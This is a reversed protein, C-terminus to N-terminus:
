LVPGIRWPVFERHGLRESATRKGSAVELLYEFIEMGVQEITAEDDLIRGANLDMNDRMARFAPTNTAIKIVPVTPFGIASGRGTTFAMLNAGGAALGTISVPDHGPTDMFVLGPSSVRGAYEVVSRLPSSGGKAVAGLSKEVINTLGGEKNGPAPNDDFNCGFRRLYDKYAAIRALLAEAVERNRARRVLLHEAGFIEPTEALVATGGAEALLDSCVGLAPNATVGSFSDSGGCNLGLVIRSAPVAVRAMAAAREIYRNVAAAGADVTARTGGSEQITLGTLRETERTGPPLYWDILNVECGLGVIIASAVNPHDLVGAITRHLQRTDPGVAHGCGDGHPFAVVGDVGAPLQATRFREAICEVVHVACNSAAAVAIYNRTGARGDQRLYGFFTPVHSPCERAPLEAAPFEYELCLEQFAVNHLHVHEGARIAVRANGIAEGYRRVPAGCGIDALAVKHGAPVASVVRVERGGARILQGPALATKAIAVNDAPHLHIAANETTAPLGIGTLTM